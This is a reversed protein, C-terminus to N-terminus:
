VFVEIDGLLSLYEKLNDLNGDDNPKRFITLKKEGSNIELTSPTLKLQTTSNIQIDGKVESSGPLEFYVLSSNGDKDQVGEFYRLQVTGWSSPKKWYMGINTIIEFNFGGGKKKTVLSKFISTLIKPCDNNLGLKYTKQLTEITGSVIYNSKSHYRFTAKLIESFQIPQKYSRKNRIGGLVLEQDQFEFSSPSIDIEEEELTDALGNM